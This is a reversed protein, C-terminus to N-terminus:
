LGAGKNRLKRCTQSYFKFLSKTEPLTHHTGTPTLEDVTVEYPTDIFTPVNDNVDEIYVTVSLYASIQFRDYLFKLM